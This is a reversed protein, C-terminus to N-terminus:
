RTLSVSRHSGRVHRNAVRALQERVQSFKDSSKSMTVRMGLGKSYFKTSREIDSVLLSIERFPEKVSDPRFVLEWPYGSPDQVTAYVNGLPLGPLM